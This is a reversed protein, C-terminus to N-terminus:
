FFKQPFIQVTPQESVKGWTIEQSDSHLKYNYVRLILFLLFCNGCLNMKQQFFLQALFLFTNGEIKFLIIFFLPGFVFVFLACFNMILQWFTTHTKNLNMKRQKM